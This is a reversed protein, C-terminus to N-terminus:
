LESKTKLDSGKNKFKYKNKRKEITMIIQFTNRSANTIDYIKNSCLWLLGYMDQDQPSM